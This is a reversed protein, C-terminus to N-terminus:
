LFEKTLGLADRLHVLLAVGHAHADYGGVFDVVLEGAAGGIGIGVPAIHLHEVVAGCALGVHGLVKKEEAVALPVVAQEGGVAAAKGGVVQQEAILAFVGVVLHVTDDVVAEIAQEVVALADVGHRGVFEVEGYAAEGDRGDVVRLGEGVLGDVIHLIGIGSTPLIDNGDEAVVAVGVTVHVIGVVDRIYHGGVVGAVLRLLHHPIGIRTDGGGRAVSVGVGRLFDLLQLGRSGEDDVVGAM